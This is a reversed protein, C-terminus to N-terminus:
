AFLTLEAGALKFIHTILLAKDRLLANKLLLESM